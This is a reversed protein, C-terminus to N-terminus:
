SPTRATITSLSLAGFQRGAFAAHTRQFSQAAFTGLATTGMAAVTGTYTVGGGVTGGPIKVDFKLGGTPFNSEDGRGLRTFGLAAGGAFAETFNTYARM